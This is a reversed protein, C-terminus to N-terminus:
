VRRALRNALFILWWALLFKPCNKREGYGTKREKDHPTVIVLPPLQSRVHLGKIPTWNGTSPMIIIILSPPRDCNLVLKLFPFTISSHFLCLSNRKHPDYWSHRRKLCNVLFILWWGAMVWALLFELYNKTVRWMGNINRVTLFPLTCLGCSTTAFACMFRYNFDLLGSKADDQNILDSLWM